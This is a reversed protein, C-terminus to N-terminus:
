PRLLQQQQRVHRPYQLILIIRPTQNLLNIQTPHPPHHIIPLNRTPHNRLHTTTHLRQPFPHLSRTNNIPPQIM